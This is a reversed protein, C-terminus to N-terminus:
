SWSMRLKCVGWASRSSPISSPCCVNQMGRRTWVGNLLFLATSLAPLTHQLAAAPHASVWHSKQRQAQRRMKTLLAWDGPSRKSAGGRQPAHWLVSATAGSLHLADPTTCEGRVFQWTDCPQSVVKIGRITRGECACTCWLQMHYPRTQFSHHTQHDPCKPADPGTAGAPAM